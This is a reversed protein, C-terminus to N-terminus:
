NLPGVMFDVILNDMIIKIKDIAESADKYKEEILDGM